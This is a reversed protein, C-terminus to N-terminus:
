WSVSLNVLLNEQKKKRLFIPWQSFTNAPTGRAHKARRMADKQQQKELKRKMKIEQVKKALDSIANAEGLVLILFTDYGQSWGM